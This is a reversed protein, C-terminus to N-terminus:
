ASEKSVSIMLFDEQPNQTLKDIVQGLQGLNYNKIMEKKCIKLHKM